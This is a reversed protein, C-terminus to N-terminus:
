KKVFCAEKGILIGKSDTGHGIQGTVAVPLRKGIFSESDPVLGISQGNSCCVIGIKDGNKM